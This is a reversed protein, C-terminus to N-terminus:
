TLLHREGGGFDPHSSFLVRQEGKGLRLRSKWLASFNGAWEVSRVLRLDNLLWAIDRNRSERLQLFTPGHRGMGQSHSNGSTPSVNPSGVLCSLQSLPLATLMLAFLIGVERLDLVLDCTVQSLFVGNGLM